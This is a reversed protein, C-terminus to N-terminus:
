GIRGGSKKEKKATTYRDVHLVIREGSMQWRRERGRKGRRREKDSTDQLVVM